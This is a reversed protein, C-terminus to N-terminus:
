GNGPTVGAYKPDLPSGVDILDLLGNPVTETPAKGYGLLDVASAPSTSGSGSASAPDTVLAYRYGSDEILYTNGSGTSAGNSGQAILGYGPKVMVVNAYTDSALQSLGFGAGPKGYPLNPSLWTTLAAVGGESVGQYGVCVDATDVSTVDYGNMGTATVPWDGGFTDQNFVKAPSPTGGASKNALAVSSPNLTNAPFPGAGHGSLEPNATYIEYAFTSLKVLGSDTQVYGVGEATTGYQGVNGLQGPASPKDGLDALAPYEIANGIAFVKLWADSVWYGPVNEGSGFDNNPSLANLFGQVSQPDTDNDGVPYKYDGEILYVEGATDHVVIGQNSASTWPGYPPASTPWYGVELYTKGDPLSENGTNAENQCLSWQRLNMNSASPVDEPAGLIGIPSGVPIGSGNITSDPVDFKQFGAGLLLRASTINYIAHLQDDHDIYAAGSSSDVALGNQWGSPASPKFVGLVAVAAVAIASLVISTAFTKVPRPAGEDSGTATPVVLNAVMRRRAFNFADLQDKRTAV